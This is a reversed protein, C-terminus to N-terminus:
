IWNSRRAAPKLLVDVWNEAVAWRKYGTTLETGFEELGPGAFRRRFVVVIRIEVWKQRTPDAVEWKKLRAGGFKNPIM